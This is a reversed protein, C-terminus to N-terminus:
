VEPLNILTYYLNATDIRSFNSATSQIGVLLINLNAKLATQSSVEIAPEFFNLTEIKHGGQMSCYIHLGFQM